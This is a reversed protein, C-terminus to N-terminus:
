ARDSPRARRAQGATRRLGVASGTGPRMEAFVNQDLTFTDGAALTLRRTLAIEPDNLRVPMTLERTLQKGDPTTLAVRITHDGVEGATVPISFSAKQQDGLTLGSPVNGALAVGEASVDLGWGARPATPM